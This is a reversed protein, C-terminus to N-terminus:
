RSLTVHEFLSFSDGNNKGDAPFHSLQKQHSISPTPNLTRFLWHVTYNLPNEEQISYFM